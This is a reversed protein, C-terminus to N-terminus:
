WHVYFYQPGIEGEDVFAEEMMTAFALQLQEESFGPRPRVRGQVQASTVRFIDLDAIEDFRRFAPVLEESTILRGDAHILGGPGLLVGLIAFMDATPLVTHHLPTDSPVLDSQARTRLLTCDLSRLRVQLAQRIEEMSERLLDVGFGGDADATWDSWNPTPLCAADLVLEVGSRFGPRQCRAGLLERELAARAVVANNYDDIKRRDM